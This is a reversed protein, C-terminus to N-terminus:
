FAIIRKAYLDIVKNYYEFDFQNHKLKDVFVRFHGNDSIIKCELEGRYCTYVKSNESSILVLNNYTIVKNNKFKFTLIRKVSDLLATGSVSRENDSTYRMDWTGNPLYVPQSPRSVVMSNILDTCSCYM